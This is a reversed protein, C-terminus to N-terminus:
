KAWAPPALRLMEPLATWEADTLLRMRQYGAVMARATSSLMLGCRKSVEAGGNAVANM